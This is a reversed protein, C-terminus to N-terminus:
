KRLYDSAGAALSREGGMPYFSARLVLVRKAWRVVGSGAEARVGLGCRRRAVRHGRDAPRATAGAGRELPRPQLRPRARRRTPRSGAKPTGHRTEDGSRLGGRAPRPRGTADVGQRALDRMMPSRGTWGSPPCCRWGRAPATDKGTMPWGARPSTRRCRGSIKAGANSSGPAACPRSAACMRPSSASRILRSRRQGPSRSTRPPTIPATVEPQPSSTGTPPPAAAVIMGRAIGDCRDARLEVQHVRGDTGDIVLQVWPGLCASGPSATRLMLRSGSTVALAHRRRSLGARPRALMGDSECATVPRKARRPREGQVLRVRRRMSSSM